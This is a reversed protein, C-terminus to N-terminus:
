ETESILYNAGCIEGGQVGRYHYDMFIRLVEDITIEVPASTRIEINLDEAMANHIASKLLLEHEDDLVGVSNVISLADDYRKSFLKLMFPISLKLIDKDYLELLRDACDSMMDYDKLSGAIMSKQRVADVFDGDISLAMDCYKLAKEDDGVLSFLESVDVLAREDNRDVIRELEVLARVANRKEGNFYHCQVKQAWFIDEFPCKEIASNIVMLAEDFRNLGRLCGIKLFMVLKFYEDEFEEGNLIELAGVYNKDDFEKKAEEIKLNLIIVM